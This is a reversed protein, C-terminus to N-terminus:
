LSDGFHCVEELLAMGVGVLESKRITSNEILKHLWILDFWWMGDGQGVSKYGYLDYHLICKTFKLLVWLRCSSVCTQYHLGLLSSINSSSVPGLYSSRVLKSHSCYQM